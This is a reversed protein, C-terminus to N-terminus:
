PKAFTDSETYDKQCLPRPAVAVIHRGSRLPRRPDFVSLPPHCLPLPLSVLVANGSFANHCRSGAIAMPSLPNMVYPFPNSGSGGAAWGSNKNQRPSVMLDACSSDTVAAAVVIAVVKSSIKGTRGTGQPHVCSSFVLLDRNQRGGPLSDIQNNRTRTGDSGGNGETCGLAPLNDVVVRMREDKLEGTM